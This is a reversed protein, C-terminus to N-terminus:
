MSTIKYCNEIWFAGSDVESFSVVMNEMGM